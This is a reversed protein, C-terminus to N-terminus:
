QRVSVNNGLSSAISMISRNVKEMPNLKAMVARTASKKLKVIKPNVRAVVSGV